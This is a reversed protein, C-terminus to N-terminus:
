HFFYRYNWKNEHTSLKYVLSSSRTPPKDFLVPLQEWTTHLLTWFTWRELFVTTIAKNSEMYTLTQVINPILQSSRICRIECIDRFLGMVPFRFGCDFMYDYFLEWGVSHWDMRKGFLPLRTKIFDSIKNNTRLKELSALTMINAPNNYPHLLNLPFSEVSLPSNRGSSNPTDSM